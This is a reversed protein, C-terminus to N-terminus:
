NIILMIHVVYKSIKNVVKHLAIQVINKNVAFRTLLMDFVDFCNEFAKSINVKLHVNDFAFKEDFLNKKEVNNHADIINAHIKLLYM